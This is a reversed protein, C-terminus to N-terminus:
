NKFSDNKVDLSAKQRKNWNDLYVKALQTNTVILINEANDLQAAKTFNFSGTEVTKGDFIMVKNHAITVTNDEYLKIGHSFLYHSLSFNQSQFQSQDLIVRVNLGRAEANVLAKAIPYSTFSYAQVEISEQASNIADVLMTTCDQGPTFCAQMKINDGAIAESSHQSCGALSIIGGLIFLRLYM